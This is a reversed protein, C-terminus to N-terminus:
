ELNMLLKHCLMGTDHRRNGLKAEFQNDVMLRVLEDPAVSGVLLNALCGCYSDISVKPGYGKAVDPHAAMYEHCNRNEAAIAKAIVTTVDIPQANFLDMASEGRAPLATLALVLVLVARRM